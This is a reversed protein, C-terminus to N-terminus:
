NGLYNGAIRNELALRRNYLTLFDEEPQAHLREEAQLGPINWIMVAYFNILKDILLYIIRFHRIKPVLYITTFIIYIYLSVNLTIYPLFYVAYLVFIFSGQPTKTETKKPPDQYWNGIIPCDIYIIYM